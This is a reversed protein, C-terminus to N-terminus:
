PMYGMVCSGGPWSGQYLFYMPREIVVAEDSTAKISINRDPGVTDNLSVTHRSHPSVTYGTVIPDSGEVQIEFTVHAPNASPNMICAWEEFGSITTGEAFYAEYGPAPTGVVNHGGPWIGRYNFYMVREAVVPESSDAVMSFEAYGIDAFADVTLRSMPSVVYDNYLVQGDTLLYFVRVSASAEGPNQLCLYTSFEDSTYGEAFYWDKQPSTTGVVDDGGTISRFDFYIPREAVVARDSSLRASVDQGPPVTDAVRVTVRSRAPVTFDQFYNIPGSSMYEVHVSAQADQPNQVCLYETFGSRTNGEAFYWTTSPSTAGIACSGGDLTGEYSFYMPREAVVPKDSSVRASVDRDPGIVDRVSLTSRSHGSVELHEDQNYGDAMMFTITVQAPDDGPNQLTLWEDFGSRTTGEAFYWTNNPLASSGRQTIEASAGAPSTVFALTAVLAAATVIRISWHGM